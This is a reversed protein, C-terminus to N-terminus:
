IERAIRYHEPMATSTLMCCHLAARFGIPISEFVGVGWRSLVFAGAMLRLGREIAM